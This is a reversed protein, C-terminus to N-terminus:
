PSASLLGARCSTASQSPRCTSRCSADALCSAPPLVAYTLMAWAVLCAAELVLGTLAVGINIHSLLHLSQNVGGLRPLVFIEFVLIAVVAGLTWKVERRIRRRRGGQTRRQLM